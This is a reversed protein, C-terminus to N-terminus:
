LRILLFPRRSEIAIAQLEDNIGQEWHIRAQRISLVCEDASYRANSRRIPLHYIQSGGGGSLANSREFLKTM